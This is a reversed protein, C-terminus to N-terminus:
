KRMAAGSGGFGIYFQGYITPDACIYKAWDFSNTVTFPGLQTWLPTAVAGSTSQWIGYARLAWSTFPGSGGVTGSSNVAVVLAGTTNDYSQITGAMYSNVAIVGAGIPNGAVYTAKLGSSINFTVTGSNVISRSDTAAYSIFGVGIATPYSQGPAIAGFDLCSFDANTVQTVSNGGDTSFYTGGFNTPYAGVGGYELGPNGIPGNSPSCYWLHGANGPVAKMLTFQGDSNFGPTANVLSFNAGSNTSKYMGHGPYWLYFTGSTTPDAVVFRQSPQHVSSPCFAAFSPSGAVTITTWNIGADSTFQPTTGGAPAWIFNTPTSVAINGGGFGTSGNDSNSPISPHVGDHALLFKTWNAGGDISYCSQCATSSRYASELGDCIAVAFNTNTFKANDLSWCASLNSGNEPECRSPYTLLDPVFIPHDWCGLIPKGASPCVIVNIVLQEEGVGQSTLTPVTGTTVSGTWTITYLNNFCNAYLKRATTRSFTICNVDIPGLAPEWPIDPPSTVSQATTWGSWGSGLQENLNGFADAAVIHAASNPDCAVSWAQTGSIETTWTAGNFSFVAGGGAGVSPGTASCAYYKGGTLTMAANGITAPQGTTTVASWTSSPGLNANTSVYLGHGQSWAYATTPSAPDFCIGTIWPGASGAPFGSPSGWTAGGDATAVMGFTSQLGVFVIGPSTPHIAMKQGLTRYSDGGNTGSAYDVPTLATQTWNVGKNISKYIGGNAQGGSQVPYVHWVMYWTNSDSPAVKIEFVGDGAYAMNSTFAAPMATSTCFQQFAGTAGNNGVPPSGLPNWLYAGYTDTRIAYTEDNAITFGSFQGGAGIKLTQLSQAAALPSAFLYIGM